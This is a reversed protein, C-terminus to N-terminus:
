VMQRDRASLDADAGPPQQDVAALPLSISGREPQLAGELAKLNGFCVDPSLRKIEAEIRNGLSARKLKPLKQERVDEFAGIEALGDLTPPSTLFTLYVM